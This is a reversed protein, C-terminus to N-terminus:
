GPLGIAQAGVAGSEHVGDTGSLLPICVDVADSRLPIYIDGDGTEGTERTARVGGPIACSLLGRARGGGM